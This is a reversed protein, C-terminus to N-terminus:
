WPLNLSPGQAEVERLGRMFARLKKSDGLKGSKIAAFILHQKEPMLAM